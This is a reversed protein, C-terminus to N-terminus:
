EEIYEIIITIPRSKSRSDGSRFFIKGDNYWVDNGVGSPPIWNIMCVSGDSLVISGYINLVTGVGHLDGLSVVEGLTSASTSVFMKRYITKSINNNKYVGIETKDTSYKFMNKLREYEEKSITVTDRAVNYIEKEYGALTYSEKEQANEYKGVATQVKGIIGNDGMTLNIVVGALILLVIITIILSILTIAKNQKKM